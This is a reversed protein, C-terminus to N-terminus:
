SNVSNDFSAVTSPAIGSREFRNKGRLVSEYCEHVLPNELLDWQLHHLLYKRTNLACVSNHPCIQNSLYEKTWCGNGLLGRWRGRGDVPAPRGRKRAGAMRAHEAHNSNWMYHRVELKPGSITPITRVVFCYEFRFSGVGYGRGCFGECGDRKATWIAPWLTKTNERVGAVHLDRALSGALAVWIKPHQGYFVRLFQVVNDVILHPEFNSCSESMEPHQRSMLVASRVNNSKNSVSQAVPATLTNPHVRTTTAHMRQHLSLTTHPSQKLTRSRKGLVTLHLQIICFESGWETNNWVWVQWVSRLLLFSM